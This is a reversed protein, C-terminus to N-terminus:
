KLLRESVQIIIWSLGILWGLIKFTTIAGEVKALHAVWRKELAEIRQESAYWRKVHDELIATLKALTEAQVATTISLKDLREDLKDLREDM